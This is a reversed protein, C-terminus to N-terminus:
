DSNSVPARMRAQKSAAARALAARLQPVAERGAAEGAAINSEKHDFDLMRTRVTRPVIVVDAEELEDGYRVYRESRGYRAMEDPSRARAQGFWSVDVAIVIDAGMARAVKVPVPSSLGGDVDEEGNIVPPVFIRPVSASARVAVGADGRNFVVRRGSRAETAIVAFPRALREIPRGNVMRNVFDQLAEGKVWGSGFLAYDVLDGRELGLAIEELERAQRGSAYLAAVVAGSSSGTVIDPVIGAEELAKIVGIHAFGRTGGSGLALAVLPRESQLPLIAAERPAGAGNYDSPPLACAAVVGAVFLILLKRLVIPSQLEFASLVRLM